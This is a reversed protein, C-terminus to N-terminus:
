ARMSRRRARWRSTWRAPPSGAVNTRRQARAAHDRAKRVRYAAMGTSSLDGGIKDAEAQLVAAQAELEARKDIAAQEEPTHPTPVERDNFRVHALV